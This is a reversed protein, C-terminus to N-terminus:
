ISCANDVMNHISLCNDVFKKAAKGMQETKMKDINEFRGICDEIDEFIMGNEGDKIYSYEVCQLVDPKRRFTCVPKGYAMAEVVSLGVWGPQFYVDTLSFLDRKVDRDYVAGFDYVNTYGSFDPKYEGAGIIVFGYHEKNLRRIVEELLDVRRYPNTFRACFLLIMEEKIGYRAKLEVKTQKSEYRVMEDTGSLTNNLAVLPKGPFIKQWQKCEKEMYVWGGDAFAMMWKLLINHKKEEKLYRKVSIGQGWLIIKKRHIFKTLLLLWTTIHAFHWMLVLTDYKRCLFAFPDYLLFGKFQMNRICNLRVDDIKFGCEKATDISNYIYIDM